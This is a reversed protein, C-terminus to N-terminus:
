LTMGTTEKMNSVKAMEVPGKKGDHRQFDNKFDKITGLGNKEYSSLALHLYDEAFMFRGLEANVEAKRIKINAILQNDSVNGLLAKKNLPENTPNNKTLADDLASFLAKKDAGANELTQLFEKGSLKKQAIM